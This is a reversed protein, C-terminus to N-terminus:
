GIALLSLYDSLSYHCHSSVSESDSCVHCCAGPLVDVLHLVPRGKRKIEFVSFSSLNSGLGKGGWKAYSEKMTWIEFFAADARDLASVVCEYEDNSFFRKAIDPKADRVVLEIDIGVRGDSVACVVL